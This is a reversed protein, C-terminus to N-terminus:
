SLLMNFELIRDRIALIVQQQRQSRSIDGGTPERYRVYALALDGPLTYTGPELWQSFQTDVINLQM